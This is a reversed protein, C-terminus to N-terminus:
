LSKVYEKMLSLPIHLGYEEKAYEAFTIFAKLQESQGVVCPITLNKVQQQAYEEMLELTVIFEGTEKGDILRYIPKINKLELFERATM